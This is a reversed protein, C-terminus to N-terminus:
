RDAELARELAARAEHLRRKATGEPVGLQAALEVVPVRHLHHMVLLYRHEVSLRDLAASISELDGVPSISDAGERGAAEDLVVERARGRRRLVDRCRNVLTRHLWADFKAPDRLRPLHRWAAVCSEQVVDHADAEHGLIASATRFLRTLREAILVEFADLDGRAAREVLENARSAAADVPGTM